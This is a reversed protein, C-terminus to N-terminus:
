TVKMSPLASEKQSPATEQPVLTHPLVHLTLVTQIFVVKLVSVHNATEQNVVCQNVQSPSNMVLALIATVPRVANVSLNAHFKLMDQANLLRPEQANLMMVSPPTTVSTTRVTQADGSRKRQHAHLQHSQHANLTQAHHAAHIATVQSELKANDANANMAIQTPEANRPKTMQSFMLVLATTTTMAPAITATQNAPVVSALKKAHANIANESKPVV